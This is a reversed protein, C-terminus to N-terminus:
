ALKSMRDRSTTVINKMKSIVIKPRESEVRSDNEVFFVQSHSLHLSILLAKRIRKTRKTGRARKVRKTKRNTKRNTERDTERNTERDTERDHSNRHMAPSGNQHRARGLIHHFLGAQHLQRGAFRCEQVRTSYHDRRLHQRTGLEQARKRDEGIRRHHLDADQLHRQRSLEPFRQGVGDIAFTRDTRCPFILAIFFRM